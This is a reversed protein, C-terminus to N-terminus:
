ISYRKHWPMGNIDIDMIGPDDTNICVRVGSQYLERIPHRDLDRVGGTIWNSYPSVELLVKRSKIFEMAEKDKVIQIGHGIRGAQIYLLLLTYVATPPYYHYVMAHLDRVAVVANDPNGTTEDEAAHITIALGACNVRDMFTKYVQPHKETGAIDFGIFDHKNTVAFEVTREFLEKGAAGVAICILGVEMNDTGVSQLGQAVGRKVAAHIEDWTILHQHNMAMYSPAYRIELLRVGHNYRDIVCERAVREISEKDQFIRQTREFKSLFADLSGQPKDTLFFERLEEENTSPLEMSLRKYEEVLTHFRVSGELHLHLEVKPLCCWKVDGAAGGNVVGIEAGVM